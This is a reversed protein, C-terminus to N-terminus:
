LLSKGKVTKFGMMASGTCRVVNRIRKLFCFFDNFIEYVLIKITAMFCRKNGLSSSDKSFKM